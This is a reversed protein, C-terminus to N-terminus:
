DRLEIVRFMANRFVTTGIEDQYKGDVYAPYRQYLYTGPAVTILFSVRADLLKARFVDARYDTNWMWGSRKGLLAIARPKAFAVVSGAPTHAQVFAYMEQCAGCTALEDQRWERASAHLYGYYAVLFAGLAFAYPRARSVVSGLHEVGVAALALAVPLIPFLFRPSPSISALGLASLYALLYWIPLPVCAARERLSPGSGGVAASAFARWAGFAALAIIIVLAVGSLFGFPMPIIWLAVEWYGKLNGLILELGPATLDSSYTAPAVLLSKQLTILLTFSALFAAYWSLPKRRAWADILLAPV